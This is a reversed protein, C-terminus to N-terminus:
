LPRGAPYFCHVLKHAPMCVQASLDWCDLKKLYWHVFRGTCLTCKNDRPNTFNGFVNPHEQLAASTDEVTSCQERLLEPWFKKKLNSLALTSQFFRGHCGIKNELAYVGTESCSGALSM